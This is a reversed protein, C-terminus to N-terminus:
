PKPDLNWPGPDLTFPEPTVADSKCCDLVSKSGGRGAGGWDGAAHGCCGGLSAVGRASYSASDVSARPEELQGAPALDAGDLRGAAAATPPAPAAAAGTAAYSAPLLLLLMLLLPLLLHPRQDHSRRTPNLALSSPSLGKGMGVGQFDEVKM